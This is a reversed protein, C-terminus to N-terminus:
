LKGLPKSISTVCVPQDPQYGSARLLRRGDACTRRKGEPLGSLALIEQVRNLGAKGGEILGLTQSITNIPGYLSALYATFVVLDGISLVGSLVHRAGVWVVLATGLAIVINVVGAYFTQLTYLRLNASLSEASATMFRRQEAEEKTFAQIVRIASMTRQVLSYITSEREHAITAAQNIRKSMASITLFLIPCVSLALLTLGWDLQFMVTTMGILLGLSVLIPFVGNM